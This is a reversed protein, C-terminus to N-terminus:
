FVSVPFWKLYLEAYTGKEYLRQLGFNFLRRLQNQGKRVAVVQGEGFFRSELYPGGKFDCCNASSENNLWLSLKVGDGFVADVTKGKLAAELARLDDFRVIKASDYYFDLFAAHTSNKMVGISKGKFDEPATSSMTTSRQGLFRAPTKFYIDTMDAEKRLADTSAFGSIVADGLSEKLAPLLTEWARGQITCTIELEKCLAKALDINFGVLEGQANLYNFPPYDPSTLFRVAIGESSPKEIRRKPDWFGPITVSEDQAQQAAAPAPTEQAVACPMSAFVFILGALLDLGANKKLFMSKLRALM